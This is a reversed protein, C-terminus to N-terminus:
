GAKGAPQKRVGVVDARKRREAVKRGLVADGDIAMLLPEGLSPKFRRRDAPKERSLDYLDIGGTQITTQRDSHFHLITGDPFSVRLIYHTVHRNTESIPEVIKRIGSTVHIEEPRFLM